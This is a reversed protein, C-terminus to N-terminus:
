SASFLKRSATLIGYILLTLGLTFGATFAVLFIFIFILGIM